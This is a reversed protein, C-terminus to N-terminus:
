ASGFYNELVALYIEKLAILEEIPICEDVQHITTYRPGFEIVPCFNKIFRADSTGGSASLQPEVGSTEHVARRVVEIFPGPKTLFAEAAESFQVEFRGGMEAEVRRAEAEIWRALSEGSHLPNFRINLKASAKAPIVNTAPNGVDVSTLALNSPDFRDTGEDLKHSALRDLLRVLKPIPNDALQPLASHGQRGSATLSVSLSGRRGVKITDGLRKGSTPEGVLCHDPVLNRQKLWLLVKATGNIAAGEEDGTLLLSISGKFSPKRSDIFDSAAAMFAAVSGKMDSAGRGYIAGEAIDGGFPPHKWSAEDGPPVVDTHGAFCFHPGGTGYRAFLNDVDATGSSSFKLRESRFGKQGLVGEVFSLAGGEDPTVSRCGILKVLLPVPDTM